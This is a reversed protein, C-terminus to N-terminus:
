MTFLFFCNWRGYSYQQDFQEAKQFDNQSFICMQLAIDYIKQIMKDTFQYELKNETSWKKLANIIKINLIENQNNTELYEILKSILLEESIPDNCSDIILVSIEICNYLLVQEINKYHINIRKVIFKIIEKLMESSYQQLHILILKYMQSSYCDLQYDLHTQTKNQKVSIQSIIQPIHHTKDFLLKLMNSNDCNMQKLNNTLYEYLQVIIYYYDSQLQTIQKSKQINQIIIEPLNDFKRQVYLQTSIKSVAKTIISRPQDHILNFDNILKQIIELYEGEESIKENLLYKLQTAALVSKDTNNNFIERLIDKTYKIIQQKYSKILSQNINLNEIFQQSQSQSQNDTEPLCIDVSLPIHDSGCKFYERLNRDNSVDLDKILIHDVKSCYIKGFLTPENNVVELLGCYTLKQFNQIEEDMCSSKHEKYFCNTTNFDGLVVLKQQKLRMILNFLCQDFNMRDKYHNLSYPAYVNVLTIKGALKVINLRYNLIDNQICFKQTMDIATIDQKVLVVTGFQYKQTYNEYYKAYTNIVQFNPLAENLITIVEDNSCKTEQLCIIDANERQQLTQILNIKNKTLGSINYTIIRFNSHFKQPVEQPPKNIFQETKLLPQLQTRDITSYQTQRYDEETIESIQDSVAYWGYNKTYQKVQCMFVQIYKNIQLQKLLQYSQNTKQYCNIQNGWQDEIQIQNTNVFVIKGTINYENNTYGTQETKIIYELKHFM